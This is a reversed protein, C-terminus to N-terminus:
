RAAFKTPQANRRRDTGTRNRTCCTCSRPSTRCSATTSVTASAASRRRKSSPPPRRTPARRRHPNRSCSCHLLWGPATLLPPLSALPLFFLLSFSSSPQSTPRRQTDAGDAQQLAGTDQPARRPPTPPPSSLLLLVVGATTTTFSISAQQQTSLWDSGRACSVRGFAVSAGVPSRQLVCWDCVRLLMIGANLGFYTPSDTQAEGSPRRTLLFRALSTVPPASAASGGSSFALLLLLSFCPERWLLM